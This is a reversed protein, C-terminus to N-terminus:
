RCSPEAAWKYERALVKGTANRIPFTRTTESATPLNQTFLKSIQGGFHVFSGMVAEFM